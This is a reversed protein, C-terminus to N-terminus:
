KPDYEVHLHNGEVVVDFDKGLASRIRQALEQRDECSKPYRTDIACGIYHLSGPSHTGERKSTVLVDEGYYFNFVHDIKNLSKQMKPHLDGIVGMKYFVTM